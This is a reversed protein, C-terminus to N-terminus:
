WWNGGLSERMCAQIDDDEDEDGYYDDPIYEEEEDCPAVEGPARPIWHCFPRNSNKDIDAWFCGCDKCELM